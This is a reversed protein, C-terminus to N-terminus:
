FLQFLFIYICLKLYHMKLEQGASYILIGCGSRIKLWDHLKIWITSMFEYISRCVTSIWILQSRWFGVSRSRWQKCFCPKDPNLLVLTLNFLKSIQGWRVLKLHYKGSGKPSPLYRQWAPFTIGHEGHLMLIVFKNSYLMKMVNQFSISFLFEFQCSIKNVCCYILM